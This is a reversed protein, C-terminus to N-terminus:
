DSSSPDATLGAEFASDFRCPLRGLCRQIVARKGEETLKSVDVNLTNQRYAMVRICFVQCSGAGDDVGACIIDEESVVEEEMLPLCQRLAEMRSPSTWVYNPLQMSRRERFPSPSRPSPSRHIARAQPPDHSRSRERGRRGEDVAAAAADVAAAAADVAVAAADVAAAM